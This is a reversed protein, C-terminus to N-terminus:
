KVWNVKQTALVCSEFEARFASIVAQGFASAGVSLEELGVTPVPTGQTSVNAAFHIMVSLPSVTAVSISLKRKEFYLDDGERALVGKLKPNLLELQERVICTLLRQLAVATLLRQDFVEVIFHVMDSGCIKARQLLDEGDVMSEFGVDCPGRWAVISNGLLGHEMYAFRSCLQKGDYKSVADIWKTQM